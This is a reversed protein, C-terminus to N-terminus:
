IYELCEGGTKSGLPGNRDRFLGDSSEIWHWIFGEGGCYKLDTKINQELRCRPRCLSKKRLTKRYLDTNELEEWADKM